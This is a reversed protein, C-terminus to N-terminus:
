TSCNKWKKLKMGEFFIPPVQLNRWNPFLSTHTKETCHHKLGVPAYQPDSIVAGFIAKDAEYNKSM